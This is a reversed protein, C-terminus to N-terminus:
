KLAAFEIPQRAPASSEVNTKIFLSPESNDSFAIVRMRPPSHSKKSRRSGLCPNLGRRTVVTIAPMNTQPAVATLHFQDYRVEPADIYKPSFTPAPAVGGVFLGAGDTLLVSTKRSSLM